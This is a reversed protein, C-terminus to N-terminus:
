YVASPDLTGLVGHHLVVFAIALLFPLWDQYLTMIGVMVFFHFHMEIVGGSLHVLTASCAVLGIATMASSFKRYRDEVTSAVAFFAIIGSETLSHALSNGTALAYIFIGVVHARLLHQLTRHRVRWVSEPLSQGKPLYDLGTRISRRVESRMTM